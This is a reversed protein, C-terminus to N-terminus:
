AAGGPEVVAPDHTWDRHFREPLLAHLEMLDLLQTFRIPPSAEGTESTTKTTSEIFFPRPNGTSTPLLRNLAAQGKGGLRAHLQSAHATGVAHGQQVASRLAHLVHSPVTPRDDDDDAKDLASARHLLANWSHLDAWTADVDAARDDSVTAQAALVYPGGFLRTTAGDVAMRERILDLDFATSDYLVHFDLASNLYAGSADDRQRRKVEKASRALGDALDYAAAFPFHPKVIAVGASATLYPRSPILDSVARTEEEFYKLYYATFPLALRGECVVTLDDGGLVLPLIPLPSLEEHYVMVQELARRFATRTWADIDNSFRRLKGVYDRDDGTHAQDAFDVFIEGLGNGDAHVMALWSDDERGDVMKSLHDFSASLDWDAPQIDTRIRHLAQDKRGQKAKAVASVLISRDGEQMVHSAPLGTTACEAVIPLRQFRSEPGPLTSRATEYLRHIAGVQAQMNGTGFPFQRGVVGLVTLGPADRLARSTIAGVIRRGKAADKVLLMAKGSVAVVIETDSAPDEIKGVAFGLRELEQGLFDEAVVRRVLESAGVCERLKNSGFIFGQNGGTEILVLHVDVNM